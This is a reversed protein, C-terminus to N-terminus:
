ISVAELGELVSLDTPNPQVADFTAWDIQAHSLPEVTESLIGANTVGEDTVIFPKNGGFARVHEGLNKIAGAGFQISPPLFYNVVPQQM